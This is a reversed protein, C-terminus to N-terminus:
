NGRNLHYQSIEYLAISTAISVNLSSINGFMDIHCSIDSAELLDEPVGNRENGVVLCIKTNFSSMRLPISKNTIELSVIQYDSDKLSFLFDFNDVVEILVGSNRSIKLVSKVDAVGNGYYYVMKVVFIDASRLILGLNESTVGCVCLVCDIDLKPMKNLTEYHDLQKELGNGFVNM